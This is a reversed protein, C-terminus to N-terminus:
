KTSVSIPPFPFPGSKTSVPIARKGVRYFLAAGSQRSIPWGLKLIELV